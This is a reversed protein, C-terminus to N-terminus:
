YMKENKENRDRKKTRKLTEGHRNQFEGHLGPQVLVWLDAEAVQTSDNFAHAM